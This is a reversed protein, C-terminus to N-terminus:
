FQLTSDLNLPSPAVSVSAGAVCATYNISCSVIANRDIISETLVAVVETRQGIGGFLVAALGIAM